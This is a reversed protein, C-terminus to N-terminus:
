KPEMCILYQHPRHVGNVLEPCGAKAVSSEGRSLTFTTGCRGEFFGESPWTVPMMERTEPEFSASVPPVQQLGVILLFLTQM